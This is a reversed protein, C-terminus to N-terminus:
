RAGLGFAVHGILLFFDRANHRGGERLCRWLHRCDDQPATSRLLLQLDEGADGSFMALWQGRERALAMAREVVYAWDSPSGLHDIVVLRAQRRVDDVYLVVSGSQRM